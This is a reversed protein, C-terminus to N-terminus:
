DIAQIMAGTRERDVESWITQPLYKMQIKLTDDLASRVDNLTGDSFKHLEDIRMLINKKDQNISRTFMRLSVGLALPEEINLNILKGQVLLLLIDKIDQLYLRNYDGEKFTYLKDDDRRVTIWELHKYNHWEVITLKKIAIIRNRSYVDRASERNLDPTPPKAAKKFWDPHQSIEDVIHDELFGTKFEYTVLILKDTEYADIWAKYLTKQQVSRNISKDSEMKDRLIKKLELESLNTGIRLLINSVQEKIQVKVQEMIIKKINEDIKNIFDENEAKAEDRLRDSQLQVVTKVAEYMQNALYKDVIGPISSVAEAFLNTQKFELFDDELAKVNDISLKPHVFDDGDNDSETQEDDDDQGDDDEDDANDDDQDDANDDDQDNDDEDDNSKWFIQEDDFGYTPIDSVGLIVGTEEHASGSAQSSYFQTKSRKIAIKMQEADSLAVESLTELGKAHLKKKEQNLWRLQLKSDQVQLLKLPKIPRRGNHQLTKGSGDVRSHSVSVAFSSSTEGLVVQDEFRHIPVKLQEIDPQLDNMRISSKFPPTLIHKAHPNYAAVDALSRGERGHDIGAAFGSHMGKEIARSITAGLATLYESSNLCKALFLNLGHTLLWRRGSITNLLHSYFREELHCAMEALGSDLKALKDDVVKMRDDQFKELQEMCNDYVIIKEQLGASSIELEHVTTLQANLDTLDREKGMVSAELDTVKVDLANRDKELIVSRGKLANVEDRLSKEVAELNTTQARLRTVEAVKTEKLLLQVKLNEIEEDRAKLLEDQKEVVSKLRRKKKVNYEARMRVYVKQLDTDPDIFTRIGGVLFDSGTLDSFVGTNPDAGGALSSDNSFLSPKVSKEKAVLASDVTSIVTTAMTMIPASSPAGITRLNPEAVSNTHDGDERESTTSVSTTVFTLTPIAMVRVEANLVAGALLRHLTSRSKAGVSAGSPSERDEKLKKPPHSVAGVDMVVSKRKRQRRLQVLAMDEVVTNAAEIVPQINADPGGRTSDGQETQNGSGGEDFLREVSAELESDARNPAIQYSGLYPYFCFYENGGDGNKQLFWLYTEEDLPYHSSLEVLYMIAKSFKRFLYPHAVLTAYDQANFDAAVPDPDKTVHKATHWLFSAPCAFDDVWFFHNNYFCRFLGVTPMIGYVRCLIEFHSVKAAGIVSLQSINIRFHRFVDVRFTSLPLRFNVYDFFRTYLGIKRVPREHMTDNQNPLVLHVEEPIHFKDSFADLAKQTLVRRIDIIASM